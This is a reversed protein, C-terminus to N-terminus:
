FVTLIAPVGYSIQVPHLHSENYAPKREQSDGHTDFVRLVPFAHTRTNESHHVM